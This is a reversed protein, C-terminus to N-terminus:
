GLALREIPQNAGRDFFVYITTRRAAFDTPSVLSFFAPDEAYERCAVIWMQVGYKRMLAPLNNDLRKQLWDQQLKAQERLSSPLLKPDPTFRDGGLLATCLLLALSAPACRM